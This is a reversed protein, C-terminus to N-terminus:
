KVEEVIPYDVKAPTVPVISWEGTDRNVVARENELDVEFMVGNIPVFFRTLRGTEIVALKERGPKFPLAVTRETFPVMLGALFGAVTKLATRRNM